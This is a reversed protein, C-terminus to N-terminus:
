HNKEHVLRLGSLTLWPDRATVTSCHDLIVDAYSGTAIVAVDETAVGLSAIARHVIGDVLGAFGFVAGAQVAEVTNKGIVDRPEALEVARLQAGRRALADLSLEVAPAIAGGLYRNREDVVDFITATGNMDVVIAPGGYLEAAALANVIRDAGVERPNDTHIAVGTKVGPGVVSVPVGSFYRELMARLELQISPVTCCMAVADVVGLEASRVFGLALLYWEDATRAPDSSVTWHELLKEGEFVGIVSRSNGVDLTLLSM